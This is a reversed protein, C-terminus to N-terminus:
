FQQRAAACNTARQEASIERLGILGVFRIDHENQDVVHTIRVRAAILISRRRDDFHRVDIVKRRLSNTERM